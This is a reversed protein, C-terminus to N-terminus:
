RLSKRAPQQPLSEWQANVEALDASLPLFERTQSPSVMEGSVRIDKHHLHNRGFLDGRRKPRISRLM